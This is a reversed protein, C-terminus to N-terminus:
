ITQTDNLKIREQKLFISIFKLCSSILNSDVSPVVEKCQTRVVKIMKNFVELLIKKVDSLHPEIICHENYM